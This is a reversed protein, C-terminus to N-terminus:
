APKLNWIVAPFHQFYVSIIDHIVIFWECWTMEPWGFCSLVWRKVGRLEPAQVLRVQGDSRVRLRRFM